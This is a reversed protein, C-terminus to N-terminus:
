RKEVVMGLMADVAEDPSVGPLLLRFIVAPMAKRLYAAVYYTAKTNKGSLLNYIIRRM